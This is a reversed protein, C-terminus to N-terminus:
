VLTPRRGQCQGSANRNRRDRQQLPIRVASRRDQGVLGHRPDHVEGRPGRIPEPDKRWVIAGALTLAIAGVNPGMTSQAGNVAEVYEKLTDVDNIVHAIPTPSWVSLYARFLTIIYKVFDGSRRM